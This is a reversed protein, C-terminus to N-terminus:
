GVFFSCHIIFWTNGGAKYDVTGDTDIEMRGIGANGQSDLRHKFNPRYGTPLTFITAVGGSKVLGEIHVVGAADKMFRGPAFTTDYKAWSNEYAPEGAAGVVHWQERLLVDHVQGHQVELYDFRPYHQSPNTWGGILHELDKVRKELDASM